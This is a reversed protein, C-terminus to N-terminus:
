FPWLADIHSFARILLPNLSDLARETLALGAQPASDPRVASVGDVQLALGLGSFFAQPDIGFRDRLTAAKAGEATRLAMLLYDKLSDKPSIGEFDASPAEAQPDPVALYAEIDPLVSRRLSKGGHGLFTSVAGAGIGLYPDVRWYHLNHLCERGTLCFNSVEYRMFGADSLLERASFWLDDTDAETPLFAGPGRGERLLRGHFSTGEEVGLCYLSIHDAGSDIVRRLDGRLGKGSQGPLGAIFDANWRGAWTSDLLSIARICEERGCPRGSLSLAKEELSQIGLSLRTVGCREFIGLKEGTLSEPNCEVTWERPPVGAGGLRSQIGSLLHELVGDPLLSPTGGGVYVTDISRSFPEKWGLGAFFGLEDL